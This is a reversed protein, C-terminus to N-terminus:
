HMGWGGDVNFSAGTVNRARDSALFVAMEGVDRPTQFRRLPILDQFWDWLEQEPRREMASFARVVSAHLETELVGPHICNVTVDYPALEKALAQSMGTVAFKSAVYHVVYAAGTQGLISSINVMRGHNSEILL